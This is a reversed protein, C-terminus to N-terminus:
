TRYGILFAKLGKGATTSGVQDIDITIEADNALSTDSIVVGTAATVSTEEGSDISLKTSLVSTGDENLDIVLTSGSPAQTVSARLDTLTMAWPMRFTLVGTAATLATTEDSCALGIVEV